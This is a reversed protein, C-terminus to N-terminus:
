RPRIIAITLASPSHTCERVRHHHLAKDQIRTQRNGISRVLPDRSRASHRGHTQGHRLGKTEELAGATRRECGQSRAFGRGRPSLRLIAFQASSKSIWPPIRGAEPKECLTRPLATRAVSSRALQISARPARESELVSTLREEFLVSQFLWSTESSCKRRSQQCRSRTYAQRYIERSSLRKSKMEGM